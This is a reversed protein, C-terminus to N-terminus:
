FPMFHRQLAATQKDGNQESAALLAAQLSGAV